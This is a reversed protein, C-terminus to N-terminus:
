RPRAATKLLARPTQHLHEFPGALYFHRDSSWGGPALPAVKRVQHVLLLGRDVLDRIGRQVTAPSLGYWRAGHDVPLIFGPRQSWAILLVAKAPLSLGHHLGLLWYSHPVNFYDGGAEAPHRYPEGSGGEELLTVAVLRGRRARTILGVDELWRWNESIRVRTSPGPELDLARAWVSAALAVDWPPASAVAHALLWMELALERRLRVFKALPAAGGGKRRAQLFSRRLPLAERHSRNLLAALTQQASAPPFRPALEAQAGSRKVKSPGRMGAQM